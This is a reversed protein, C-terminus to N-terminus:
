TNFICIIYLIYIDLKNSIKYLIYIDLKNSIKLIIKDKNKLYNYVPNTYINLRRSKYIIDIM